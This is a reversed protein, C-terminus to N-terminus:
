LSRIAPPIPAPQAQTRSRFVYQLIALTAVGVAFGVLYERHTIALAMGSTIYPMAFEKIQIGLHIMQNGLTPANEIIWTVTWSLGSYLLKGAEVIKDVLANAWEPTQIQSTVQTMTITM